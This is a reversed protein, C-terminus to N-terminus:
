HRIIQNQMITLQIIIENYMVIYYYYFHSACYIYRAQIMWFWGREKDMSFSDEEFSIEPALVHPVASMPNPSCLLRPTQEIGLYTCVCVCVCVCVCCKSYLGHCLGKM